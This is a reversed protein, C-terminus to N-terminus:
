PANFRSDQRAFREYIHLLEGWFVTAETDM